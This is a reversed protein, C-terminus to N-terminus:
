PNDCDLPNVLAKMEQMVMQEYKQLGTRRSLIRFPQQMNNAQRMDQMRYDTQGDKITMLHSNSYDPM